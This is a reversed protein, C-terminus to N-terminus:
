TKLSKFLNGSNFLTGSVSHTGGGKNVFTVTTGVPVVLQIPHFAKYELRVEYIGQDSDDHKKCSILIFFIFFLIITHNKM